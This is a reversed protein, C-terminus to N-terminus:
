WMKWTKWNKKKKCLARIKYELFIPFKGVFCGDFKRFIARERTNEWFIESKNVTSQVKNVLLPKAFINKKLFKETKKRRKQFLKTCEVKSVSARFLVYM